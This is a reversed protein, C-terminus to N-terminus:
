KLEESGSQVESKTNRHNEPTLRRVNKNTKRTPSKRGTIKTCEGIDIFPSSRM